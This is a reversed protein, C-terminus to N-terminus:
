DRERERIEKIEEPTCGISTLEYDTCRNLTYTNVRFEYSLGEAICEAETKSSRITCGYTEVGNAGTYLLQLPSIKKM